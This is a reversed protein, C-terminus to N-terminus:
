AVLPNAGFPVLLQRVGGVGGGTRCALQLRLDLDVLREVMHVHHAELAEELVVVVGVHQELQAGVVYAGRGAMNGRRGVWARM